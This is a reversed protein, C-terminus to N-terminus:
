SSEPRLNWKKPRVVRNAPTGLRGDPKRLALCREIFLIETKIKSKEGKPLELLSSIPKNVAARVRAIADTYLDGYENEYRKASDRRVAADSEHVM